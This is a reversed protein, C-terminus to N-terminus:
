CERAGEALALLAALRPDDVQALDCRVRRGNVLVVEVGVSAPAQRVPRRASAKTVRPGASVSARVRVPVFKAAVVASAPARSPGPAPRKAGGSLRSAWWTFTQPHIGEREAFAARSLGSRTCAEMLAAWEAASRRRAKAKKSM